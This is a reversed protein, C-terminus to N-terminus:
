RQRAAEHGVLGKGRAAAWISGLGAGCALLSSVTGTVLITSSSVVILVFLLVVGVALSLEPTRRTKLASARSDDVATPNEMDTKTTDAPEDISTSTKAPSKENVPEDAKASAAARAAIVEMHAAWEQATPLQGELREMRSKRLHKVLVDHANESVLDRM